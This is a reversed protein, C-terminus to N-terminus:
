KTHVSHPSISHRDFDSTVRRPVAARLSTVSIWTRPRQPAQRRPHHSSARPPKHSPALGATSLTNRVSSAPHNRLQSIWLFIQSSTRLRTLMRFYQAAITRTKVAVRRRIIVKLLGDAAKTASNRSMQAQATERLVCFSGIESLSLEIASGVTTPAPESGHPGSSLSWLRM